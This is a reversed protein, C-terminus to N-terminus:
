AIVLRSHSNLPSIKRRKKREEEREGREENIASFLLSPPHKTPEMPYPPSSDGCGGSGGRCNPLFAVSQLLCKSTEMTQSNLCIAHQLQKRWGEFKRYSTQYLTQLLQELIIM